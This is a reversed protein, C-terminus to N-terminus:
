DMGKKEVSKTYEGQIHRWKNNRVRDKKDTRMLQGYQVQGRLEKSKDGNEKEM